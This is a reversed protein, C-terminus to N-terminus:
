FGGYQSFGGAGGFAQYGPKQVGGRWTDVGGSREHTCGVEISLTKRKTSLDKLAKKFTKDLTRQDTLRMKKLSKAWEPKVRLEDLAAGRLNGEVRDNGTISFYRLKPCNSFFAILSTDTLGQSGELNVHILNPCAAALNAVATDSLSAGEGTESDGSRFDQLSSCFSPGAAIIAELHTSHWAFWTLPPRYQRPAM